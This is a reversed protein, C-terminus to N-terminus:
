VIAPNSATPASVENSEQYPMLCEHDSVIFHRYDSSLTVNTCGWDHGVLIERDDDNSALAWGRGPIEYKFLFELSVLVDAEEGDGCISDEALKWVRITSDQSASVLIRSVSLYLLANVNDTHGHLTQHLKRTHCDWIKVTQDDSGSAVLAVHKKKKTSADCYCDLFLLCNIGEDHQGSIVFLPETPQQLSWILIDRDLSASAFYEGNEGFPKTDLLTLFQLDMVYHRHYQFSAICEWNYEADWLKITMDDSCSLVHPSRVALGRIFDDHALWEHRMLGTKM